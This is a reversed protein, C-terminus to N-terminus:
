QTCVKVPRKQLRLFSTHSYYDETLESDDHTHDDWLVM